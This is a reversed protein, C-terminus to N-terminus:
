HGPFLDLDSCCQFYSSEELFLKAGVWVVLIFAEPSIEDAAECKKGRATDVGTLFILCHTSNWTDFAKFYSESNHGLLM